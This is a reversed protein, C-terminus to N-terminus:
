FLGRFLVYLGFPLGILVGLGMLMGMFWDGVGDATDEGGVLRILWYIGFGGAFIIGPVWAYEGDWSSFSEQYARWGRAEVSTTITLLITSIAALAQKTTGDNM